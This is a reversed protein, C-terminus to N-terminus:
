ILYENPKHKKLYPVLMESFVDTIYADLAAVSLVVSARILDKSIRIRLNRNDIKLRLLSRYSRILAISRNITKDFKVFAKSEEIM